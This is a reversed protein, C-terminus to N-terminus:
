YGVRSAAHSHHLVVVPRFPLVGITATTRFDGIDPMGAPTSKCSVNGIVDHRAVHFDARLNHPSFRCRRDPAAVVVPLVFTAPIRYSFPARRAPNAVPRLGSNPINPVFNVVFVFVAVACLFWQFAHCTWDAVVVERLHVIWEAAATRGYNSTLM